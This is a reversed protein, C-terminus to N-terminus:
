AAGKPKGFLALLSREVAEPSQTPIAVDAARKGGTDRSQATLVAIFERITKMDWTEIERISIGLRISLSILM